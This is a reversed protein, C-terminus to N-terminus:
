LVVDIENRYGDHYYAKANDNTEKSEDSSGTEFKSSLWSMEGTEKVHINVETDVM